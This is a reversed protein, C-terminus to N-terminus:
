HKQTSNLFCTHGVGQPREWSTGDNPGRSMGCSPGTLTGHVDWNLVKSYKNKWYFCYYIHLVFVIADLFVKKMKENFWWNEHQNVLLGRFTGQLDRINPGKSSRWPVNSALQSSISMVLLLNAIILQWKKYTKHEEFNKYVM